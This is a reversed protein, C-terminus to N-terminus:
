SISWAEQSHLNMVSCLVQVFLCSILYSLLLNIGICIILRTYDNVMVKAELVLELFNSFFIAVESSVLKKYLASFITIFIFM